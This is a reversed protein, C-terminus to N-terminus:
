ANRPSRFSLRTMMTLVLSVKLNRRILAKNALRLFSLEMNQELEAYAVKSQDNGCVAGLKGEVM